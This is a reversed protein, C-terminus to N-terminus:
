SYEPIMCCRLFSIACLFTSIRHKKHHQHSSISVEALCGFSPALFGRPADRCHCDGKVGTMM